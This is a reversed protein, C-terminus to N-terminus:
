RNYIPTHWFVFVWPTEKRDISALEQKVWNYQVGGESYDTETSLWVFRAHGHTFAYYFSGNMPAQAYWDAMYEGKGNEKTM